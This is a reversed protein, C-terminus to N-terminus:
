QRSGWIQFWMDEGASDAAGAKYYTGNVYTDVEGLETFIKRGNSAECELNLYYTLGSTLPGVPTPYEVEFVQFSDGGSANTITTSDISVLSGAVAGSNVGTGISINLTANPGQADRCLHLVLKSIKYGPGLLAGHKFSQSGKQGLKVEMKKGGSANQQLVSTTPGLAGRYFRESYNSVSTDTFTISGSTAANTTIPTWDKLNSSAAIVYNPYSPGSLQMTLGSPTMAASDFHLPPNILTLTAESSMVTGSANKVEVCYQGENFWQANTITYTSSTAGAIRSGNFFWRYQLTTLSVAVVSFTATGHNAVTQDLPPVGIIPPVGLQGHTKSLVLFFSLLCIAREWFRLKM